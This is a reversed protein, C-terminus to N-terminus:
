GGTLTLYRAQVAPCHKASAFLDCGDYRHARFISAWAGDFELRWKVDSTEPDLEIIASRDSAFPTLFRFVGKAILVNGSPLYDVDGVIPTYWGEETWSWLLTAEHTDLDLEYEAIRSSDGGPRGTGNDYVLVRNDVFDPDHQAFPWEARPLPSGSPDVLTFTGDAGFVHTREGSSRDIRWIAQGAYLSIWLGEGASDTVMELANAHWPSGSYPGEIGADVLQQSSWSWTVSETVPDWREVAVGYWEADALTDRSTTLSLIEGDALPESHHNYGLGFDPTDRWLVTDGFRDVQQVFGRHSASEDFLGWGGGMHMVEGTWSVDVDILYTGGLNYVWRARGLPDVVMVFQAGLEQVNFLTWVGSPTGTVSYDPLTGAAPGLEITFPKAVAGKCLPAAECTWTTDAYLGHVGLVHEEAPGESEAIVHEDPDDDPTCALWVPAQGDLTVTVRRQLFAPTEEVTVDVVGVDCDEPLPGDTPPLTTTPTSPVDPRPMADQQTCAALGVLWIFM